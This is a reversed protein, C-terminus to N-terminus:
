KPIHAVGVTLTGFNMSGLIEGGVVDCAAGAEALKGDRAALTSSFAVPSGRDLGRILFDM